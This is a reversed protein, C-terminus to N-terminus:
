LNELKKSLAERAAQLQEKIARSNAIAEPDIEHQVSEIYGRKKGITKLLFCIAGLEREKTILHSLSAEADDIRKEKCEEVIAQLFPSAKVRKAINSGTQGILEGARYLLGEAKVIAQAIREDSVADIRNKKPPIEPDPYQM